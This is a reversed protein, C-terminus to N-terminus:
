CNPLYVDTEEKYPLYPLKILVITGSNKSSDVHLGYGKGYYLEIRTHINKLGISQKNRQGLETFHSEQSLNDQLAQLQISDMGTGNDSISIFINGNEIHAKIAITDGSNCYQLGHYLANEVIPQLILKLVKMELMNSPIEKIVKFANDFRIQQISIYDQMHRLEDAISVLESQTKISYRFMQGLALTMTSISEVEEIEAISNISELTNYLFHSNIQAELSKMQSDLVILKNEYENKIAHNLEEVMTNYENYLVGIEDSKNLYNTAKILSHQEHNKMIQSLKTIPKTLYGSLTFSLTLVMLGCLCLLLIIMNKTSNFEAYLQNYDVAMLTTLHYNPIAQSTIQIDGTTISKLPLTKVDNTIDNKNLFLTYGSDSIVSLLVYSPFLNSDPQQFIQPSCDIFLVGLLDHTKFDYIARSFSISQSAGIIFEKKSISSIYLDGKLALTQEYWDSHFPKYGVEIDTNNRYGFGINDGSGTFIYIGNIYDNQYILNQCLFKMNKRSQYLDYTNFSGDDTRYRKLDDMISYSDDSYLQFVQTIDDMDNLIAQTDKNFNDFYNNSISSIQKTILAKYKTYTYFSTLLIPIISITLFVTLFKYKLKM